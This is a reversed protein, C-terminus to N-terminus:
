PLLSQERSPWVARANEKKRIVKQMSMEVFFMLEGHAILFVVSVRITFFKTSCSSIPSEDKAFLRNLTEAFGKEDISKAELEVM